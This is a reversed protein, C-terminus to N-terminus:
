DLAGVRPKACNEERSWASHLLSLSYIILVIFNREIQWGRFNMEFISESHRQLCSRRTRKWLHFPSEGVNLIHIWFLTQRRRVALENVKFMERCFILFIKRRVFFFPIFHIQFPFLRSIPQFNPCERCHAWIQCFKAM